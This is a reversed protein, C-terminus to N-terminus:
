LHYRRKVKSGAYIGFIFGGIHAWYAIGTGTINAFTGNVIQILFWVFLFIVAPIEILFPIFWIILTVIKSYWFQVFYAGMVASIAGSAGVLPYLSFSNFLMHFFLAFLGGSIYFITYKFHGLRDEVNDGFIWLFWMNGLLHSWGGHIFMHSIFPVIPNSKLLLQYYDWKRLLIPNSTLVHTYRIPLVGYNYFFMILKENSLFIEYFFILVNIFIIFYTVYPKKRSPITDYLPFM